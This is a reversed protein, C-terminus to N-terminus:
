HYCFFSSFFLFLEQIAVSCLKALPLYVLSFIKLIFQMEFKYVGKSIM